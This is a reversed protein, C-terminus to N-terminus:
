QNPLLLSCFLFLLQGVFCLIPNLLYRIHMCVQKTFEGHCKFLEGPEKRWQKKIGGKRKRRSNEKDRREREGEEKRQGKGRNNTPM